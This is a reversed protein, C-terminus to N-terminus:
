NDLGQQLVSSVTESLSQLGFRELLKYVINSCEYNASPLSKNPKKSFDDRRMQRIKEFLVLVDVTQDIIGELQGRSGNYHELMSQLEVYLKMIENFEKFDSCHSIIEAIESEDVQKPKKIWKNHTVDYIADAKHQSYAGTSFYFHVPHKKIYMKDDFLEYINSNLEKLHEKYENSVFLTIDIDSDEQYQYTLSSGIWWVKDIEISYHQKIQEVAELIKNLINPSVEDGSIIDDDLSSRVPDIISYEVTSSPRFIPM